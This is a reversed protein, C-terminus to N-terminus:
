WTTGEAEVPEDEAPGPEEIPLHPEEAMRARRRYRAELEFFGEQEEAPLGLRLASEYARRQSEFGEVPFRPDIDYGLGRWLTSVPVCDGSEM